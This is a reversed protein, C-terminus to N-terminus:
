NVLMHWVELRRSKIIWHYHDQLVEKEEKKDCLCSKSSDCKYEKQPGM